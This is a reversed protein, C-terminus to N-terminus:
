ALSVVRAYHGQFALPVTVPSPGNRNKGVILDVEGLRETETVYQDERHLLWVQDSDQELAGSERLDSVMPVHSARQTNGRNLQALLMVPCDFEKALLKTNRSIAAVQEQRPLRSDHPEVLQAYDIGILGLPRGYRRQTQRAAARIQGMTQKERDDLYLPLDRVQHSARAVKEWEADSMRRQLMNGLNVKAEAALIRAMYENRSMELTAIHVPRNQKATFVATDKLVLSKGHGPRAAVTIMSGGLLGNTIDNVDSWPTQAGVQETELWDIADAMAESITTGGEATRAESAAESMWQQADQAASTADEATLARQHARTSADILRRRLAADLVPAAYSTAAWPMQCSEVMGHLYMEVTQGDIQKLDTRRRLEGAVTVLDVPHRNAHMATVTNHITEHAPLYYDSGTLMDTVDDIVSARQLMAGLVSREADRDQPPTTM